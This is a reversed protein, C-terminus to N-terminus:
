PRPLGGSHRLGDITAQDWIGTCYVSHDTILGDADTHVRLCMQSMAPGGNYTYRPEIECVWGDPTPSASWRPVRYDAQFEEAAAFALVKDRGEIQVRWRPVHLDLFASEAYLPRLADVDGAAWAVLFANIRDAGALSAADPAFDVRRSTDRYDGILVLELTGISTRQRHPEFGDICVAADGTAETAVLCAGGTDDARWRELAGGGDLACLVTWAHAHVTSVEGPAYARLALVPGDDHRALIARPDAPSVQARADALDVTTAYQQLQAGIARLADPGPREGLTAATDLLREM